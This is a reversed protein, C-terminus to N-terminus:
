EKALKRTVLGQKTKLEVFYLGRSIVSVNITYTADSENEEFTKVLVLKGTIDYLSLTLQKQDKGISLSIEETCPNPFFRIQDELSSEGIGTSTIQNSITIMVSDKLNINAQARAKAWVTGNKTATVVGSANITADGTGKVITWTAAQSANSPTITATMPLTGNNSSIIAPVNNQTKVVIGTAAITQNIITIQLSDKKTPDAVSSAKAWVNGNSQGTVLGGSGIMANGSGPVISWIVAQSMTSPYITSTMQLAGGNTSIYAPVNGQTAVSMSTIGTVLLRYDEAQGADTSNCASLPYAASRKIIRLRTNGPVANGPITITATLAVADTGTSNYLSGLAYEEGTDFTNNQNWDIYAKVFSTSAGNTNGKITFTYTQNTQVTGTLTTYNEHAASSLSASSSNNIGAFNLLTLPEVAQTFSAACYPAPFSASAANTYINVSDISLYRQNAASYCNFAFYYLGSTTPTFVASRSQASTNTLVPLDLLVNTQSSATAQTGATVKLSETKNSSPSQVCQKFSLVYSTGASLSLGPTFAWTANPYYTTWQSTLTKNGHPVCVNALLGSQPGSTWADAYNGTPAYISWGAPPFTSGEFSEQLLLTQASFRSSLLVFFLIRFISPTM